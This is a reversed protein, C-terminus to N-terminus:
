KEVTFSALLDAPVRFVGLHLGADVYGWSIVAAEFAEVLNGKSFFHLGDSHYARALELIKAAEPNESIIEVTPLVKGMRELEKKAAGELDPLTVGSVM